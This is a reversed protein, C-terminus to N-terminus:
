DDFLFAWTGFAAGKWIGERKADRVERHQTVRDRSRVNSILAALEGIDLWVGHEPCVDTRIGHQGEVIMRKGCIPCSREGHPVIAANDTPEVGDELRQFFERLGNDM